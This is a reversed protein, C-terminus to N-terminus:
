APPGKSSRGGRVVGNRELSASQEKGTGGGQTGALEAAHHDAEVRVRLVQLRLAVDPVYLQGLTQLPAKPAGSRTTAHQDARNGPGGAENLSGSRLSGGHNLRWIPEDGHMNRVLAVPAGVFARGAGFDGAPKGGEFPVVKCARVVARLGVGTREIEHGAVRQDTRFRLRESNLALVVQEAADHRKGEHGGFRDGM